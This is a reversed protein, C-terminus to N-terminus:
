CPEVNRPGSLPPAFIDSFGVSASPRDFRQLARRFDSTTSRSSRPSSMPSNLRPIRTGGRLQLAPPPPEQLPGTLPQLRLVRRVPLQHSGTRLQPLHRHPHLKLRLAEFFVELRELLSPLHHAGEDLAVAAGPDRWRCM